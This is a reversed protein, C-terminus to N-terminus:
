LAAATLEPQGLVMKVDGSEGSLHRRWVSRNTARNKVPPTLEVCVMGEGQPHDPRPEVVVGRHLVDGLPAMVHANIPLGKTQNM